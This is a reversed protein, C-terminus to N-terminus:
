GVNNFNKLREILIPKNKKSIMDLTMGNKFVLINNRRDYSSVNSLNIICSRHTRFFRADRCLLEDIGRVSAYNVFSDDKTYITVSNDCFNKVIYYIDDYPIRYIEDFISFSYVSYRTVIKYASYLCEHFVEYFNKDVKILDLFLIHKLKDIISAKDNQTLLIIPSMFDGSERIKKAFAMAKLDSDIDIIYIKAGETYKVPEEEERGASSFNLNYIKYCDPKSFLFKKIENECVKGMKKDDDYIVFNIM